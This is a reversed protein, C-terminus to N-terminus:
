VARFQMKAPISFILVVFRGELALKSSQRLVFTHGPREHKGVLGCPTVRFGMRSTYAMTIVGPQLLRSPHAQPLLGYGPIRSSGRYSGHRLDVWVYAKFFGHHELRGDHYLYPDLMERLLKTAMSLTKGGLNSPLIETRLCLHTALALEDVDAGARIGPSWCIRGELM